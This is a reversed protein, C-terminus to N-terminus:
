AAETETQAAVETKASKAAKPAKEDLYERIVDQAHATQFEPRDKIALVADYKTMPQSLEALEIDTHGERHLIKFRSVVDKTAFRVKVKGGTPQRSVGCIQVLKDTM